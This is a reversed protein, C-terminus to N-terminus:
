LIETMMSFEREEVETISSLYAETKDRVLSTMETTSLTRVQEPPFQLSVYLTKGICYHGEPYVNDNRVIICLGLKDYETSISPPFNIQCVAQNIMEHDIKEAVGALIVCTSKVEM